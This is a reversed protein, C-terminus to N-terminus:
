KFSQNLIGVENGVEVATVETCSGDVSVQVLAADEEKTKRSGGEVCDPKCAIAV